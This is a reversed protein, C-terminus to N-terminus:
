FWPPWPFGLGGSGGSGGDGNGGSGSDEVCGTAGDKRYGRMCDGCTPGPSTNLCDRRPDCGGNNVTCPNGGTCGDPGKGTGSWGAPCQCMFGGPTNVCAAPSTDCDSMGSACEDQDVCSGDMSMVYGSSCQCMASGPQNVCTAGAGCRLAGSMCEDVDTCSAGDGVYGTLCQCSRRGDSGPKCSASAACDADKQCSDDPACRPGDDHFGRECVCRYDGRSSRCSAHEACHAHECPDHVVGADDDSLAQGLGTVIGSDDVVTAAVSGADIPLSSADTMSGADTPSGADLEQTRGADSSPWYLPLDAWSAEASVCAGRACTASAECSVGICDAGLRVKAVRWEGEGYRTNLRAEAVPASHHDSEASVHVSVFPTALGRPQLVVRQVHDDDVGALMFDEAYVPIAGLAREATSAQAATISIRDSQERVAREVEVDIVLLTSSHVSSQLQCAGLLWLWLLQWRVHRRVHVSFDGFGWRSIALRECRM